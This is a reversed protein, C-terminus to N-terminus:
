ARAKRPVTEAWIVFFPVILVSAVVALTAWQELSSM